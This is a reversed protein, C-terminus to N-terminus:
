FASGYTLVSGFKWLWNDKNGKSHLCYAVAIYLLLFSNPNKKEGLVLAPSIIILYIM